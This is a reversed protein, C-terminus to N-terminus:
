SFSTSKDSEFSLSMLLCWGLCLIKAVCSLYVTDMHIEHTDAKRLRVGSSRRLRSHRDEILTMVGSNRGVLNLM